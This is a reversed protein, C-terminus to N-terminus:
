IVLSIRKKPVGSYALACLIRAASPFQRGDFGRGPQQTPNEISTNTPDKPVGYATPHPEESTDAGVDQHASFVNEPGKRYMHGPKTRAEYPPGGYLPHNATRPTMGAHKHSAFQCICFM